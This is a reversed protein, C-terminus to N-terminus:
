PTEGGSSGQKSKEPDIFMDGKEPFRDNHERMAREISEMVAQRNADTDGPHIEWIFDPALSIVAFDTQHRYETRYLLILMIRTNALWEILYDLFEESTRDIWHLDEVELILLKNQSERIFLDRIAEFTRERKVQPELKSYEEDDTKLSLIEQFSPITHELKEDLAFVNEKIKKRIIFERDEEEIEFYSKIIDLIPLYIISEGYHLCQGQLYTYIGPTLRNRFEMMLRTKGVGAEGVVGVVQGSGSQVKEYPEMLAAM